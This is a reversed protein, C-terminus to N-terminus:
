AVEAGGGAAVPVVRPGVGAEGERGEAHLAVCEVAEGPQELEGADALAEVALPPNAVVDRHM